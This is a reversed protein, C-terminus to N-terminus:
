LGHQTGVMFRISDIKGGEEFPTSAVGFTAELRSAPDGTTRVGLASSWRMTRVDVDRLHAGFVNGVSAQLTGDLFVWFPWSYDLTTVLASRDVLRGRLFGPMLSDGGLSVLDTFPIDANQLPDAFRAHATLALMRRTGTLDVSAGLSGGYQIWARRPGQAPDNVTFTAEEYADLRVDVGRRATRPRSDLALELRQFAAAYDQDLGPAQVLGSAIRERLSPEGCCTEDGFWLGRGGLAMGIRSSRWFEAAYGAQMRVATAQYRARDEDRSRPGLGYFPLDKRRTFTTDFTLEESARTRYREGARAVVYDPGWTGAQLTALNQRYKWSVNLGVIPKLGVDFRAAPLITLQKLPGDSSTDQAKQLADSSEVTRVAAGLPRRLVFETVAWVPFMVVRGVADVVRTPPKRKPRGYDPEAAAARGALALM